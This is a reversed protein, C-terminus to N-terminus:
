NPLGPDGGSPPFPKIEADATGCQPITNNFFLFFSLFFSHETNLQSDPVCFLVAASDRGPVKRDEIRGVTNRERAPSRRFSNASIQQFTLVM